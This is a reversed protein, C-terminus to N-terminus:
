INPPRHLLPLEGKTRADDVFERISTVRLCGVHGGTGTVIAMGTCFGKCCERKALEQAEGPSSAHDGDVHQQREAVAHHGDPQPYNDFSQVLASNSWAGHMEASAAPLSYGALSIVIVLRLLILMKSLTIRHMGM